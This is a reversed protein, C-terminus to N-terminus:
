IIAYPRDRNKMGYFQKWICSQIKQVNVVQIKIMQMDDQIPTKSKQMAIRLKNIKLEMVYRLREAFDVVEKDDATAIAAKDRATNM